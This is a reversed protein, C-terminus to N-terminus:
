LKKEFYVLTNEEAFHSVIIPKNVKEPTPASGLMATTFVVVGASGLTIGLMIFTKKAIFLKLKAAVGLVGTSAAAATGVWSAVEAASTELDVNQAASFLHDLNQHKM